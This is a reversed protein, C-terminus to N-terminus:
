GGEGAGNHARREEAANRLLAASRYFLHVFKGYPLTLFLAAVMGLHLALLIGMAPSERLALLALGTLSAFLLVLLFSIDLGVMRREAPARDSRWKLVLLGATGAVLMVGGATGLAVPWSLLPYPAPWGLLHDYGAAVTTSALCLLFGYFVAHHLWRRTESFRADPYNCGAGGGGLHRLAFADAAARLVAGAGLPAAPDRTERWFRVTGGALVVLAYGGLLLAPIVMALYPVVRYFAGPGVRAVWLERPGLLALAALLVAGV